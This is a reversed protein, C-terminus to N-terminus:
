SEVFIRRSVASIAKVPDIKFEVSLSGTLSALASHALAHSVLPM